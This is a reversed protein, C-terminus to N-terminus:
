IHAEIWGLESRHKLPFKIKLGWADRLAINWSPWPKEGKARRTHLRPSHHEFHLPIAPLPHRPSTQTDITLHCNATGQIDQTPLPHYLLRTEGPSNQESPYHFLIPDMLAASVARQRRPTKLATNLHRKCVKLVLCLFRTKRQLALQDWTKEHRPM